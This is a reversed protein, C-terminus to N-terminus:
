EPLLEPLDSQEQCGPFTTSHFQSQVQRVQQGQALRLHYKARFSRAPAEGMNLLQERLSTLLQTWGETDRSGIEQTGRLQCAPPLSPLSAAM